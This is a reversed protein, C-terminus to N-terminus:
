RGGAFATFRYWAPKPQFGATFLGAAACFNCAAPGADDTLSYWHIGKLRWRSRGDRLMSFARALEQGQGKLGKQFPGRAASGWSLETIWLGTSADGNAKMTARLDEIQAPVEDANRSYPHLAVGDFSHAIGKHRYLASLFSVASYARPPRQAPTGFMGALLLDARPDVSSLAARSAKVLKAYAAPSVPDAFYFFNPENWIQWIRIPNYPVPDASGPAHETWYAGGPGYRAVAARLFERWATLQAGGVPLVRPSRAVWRPSGWIVPLTQMHQHAPGEVLRDFADWQPEAGASPQVQSWDLPVRISGVGGAAIREVQADTPVTVPNVGWFSAPIPAAPAAPVALLLAAFAAALIAIRSAGSAIRM